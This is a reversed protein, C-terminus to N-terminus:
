DKPIKSAVARLRSALTPIRRPATCAPWFYSSPPFLKFFFRSFFSLFPPKKPFFRTIVGFNGLAPNTETLLDTTLKVVQDLVRGVLKGSVILRELGSLLLLYIGHPTASKSVTSIALQVIHSCWEPSQLLFHLFINYLIYIAM